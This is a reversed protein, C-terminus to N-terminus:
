DPFHTYTQLEALRQRERDALCEGAVVPELTGGAVLSGSFDCDLKEFRRWARQSSAFQALRKQGLESRAAVRAIALKTLRALRARETKICDEMAVTTSARKLCQRYSPTAAPSSASAAAALATVAIAVALRRM